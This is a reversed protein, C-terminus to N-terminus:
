LKSKILSFWKGGYIKLIIVVLILLAIIGYIELTTTKFKQLSNIKKEDQAITVLSQNHLSQLSDKSKQFLFLKATSEVTDHIPKINRLKSLLSQNYDILSNIQIAMALETSDCQALSTDHKIITIPKIQGIKNNYYDVTDQLSKMWNKYETSDHSIPVCPFHVICKNALASPRKNYQKEIKWESRQEKQKETPFLVRCSTCTFISASLVGVIILWCILEGITFKSKKIQM